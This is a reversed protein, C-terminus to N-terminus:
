QLVKKLIALSDEADATGNGNMDANKLGTKDLTGVGLIHKNAAIVDLIDVECDLNTDGPQELANHGTATSNSVPKEIPKVCPTINFQDYLAVATKMTDTFTYDGPTSLARLGNVPEEDFQCGSYHEELYAQVEEFDITNDSYYYLTHADGMMSCNRYIATEGFGYYESLLHKRALAMLMRLELKAAQELEDARFETLDTRSLQLELTRSRSAYHASFTYAQTDPDIMTLYAQDAGYFDGTCTSSFVKHEDTNEQYSQIGEDIGPFITNLTEAVQCIAEDLDLDERLVFRISNMRPVAAYVFDKTRDMFEIKKTVAFIMGNKDGSYMGHDAIPTQGEFADWSSYMWRWDANTTLGTVPVCALALLAAMLKKMTKKMMIVGAKM